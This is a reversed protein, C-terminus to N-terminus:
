LFVSVEGVVPCVLTTVIVVSCSLPPVAFEPSSETETVIAAVTVTAFMSLAGVMVSVASVPATVSADAPVVSVAVSVITPASPSPSAIVHPQEDQELLPPVEVPM